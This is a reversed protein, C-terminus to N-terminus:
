ARDPLICTPTAAITRRRVRGPVGTRLDLTLSTVENSRQGAVLVTDRAVVHHRPWDVGSEVLAIPSLSAADGAVRLTAITNSGRVGAYVFQADHSLAIEAAADGPMVAPSLTSGSVLHWRGAGDPAVAFLENSLETVVYLHGSPHWVTHRPGSGRPLALEQTMRLTDDDTRWFRLLDRGLDTTVAWGGPLFRTQHSRTPAEEAGAGFEVAGADTGAHGAAAALRPSSPAGRDDLAIQVVRGDGYCSAVLWQGDPAVALHCVDEGAAVPLGLPAFSTEGTRAFAQVTGAAEMAAYLVDRTPHWAIWSPSGTVAVADAGVGLPGGALADDASGALLPAIGTANGDMDATYAGLFFRM